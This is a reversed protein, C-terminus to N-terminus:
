ENVASAPEEDFGLLKNPTTELARAIAPIADTNPTNRGAEFRWIDHPWMGARRSVEAQTLGLEKRRARMRAAINMNKTGGNDIVYWSFPM